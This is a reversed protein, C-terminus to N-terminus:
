LNLYQIVFSTTIRTEQQESPTGDVTRSYFTERLQEPRFVCCGSTPAFKPPCRDVQGFFSVSKQDDFPRVSLDHGTGFQRAPKRCGSLSVDGLTEPSEGDRGPWVVRM